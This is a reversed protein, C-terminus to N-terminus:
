KDAKKATIIAGIAAGILLGIPGGALLAGTAAIAAAGAAAGRMGDPASANWKEAKSSVSINQEKLRQRFEDAVELIFGPTSGLVSALADMQPVTIDAQGLEIRSITGQSVGSKDALVNQSWDKERRLYAIVLGVIGSYSATLNGGQEAAMRILGSIISDRNGM